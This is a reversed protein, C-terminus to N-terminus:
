LGLTRLYKISAEVSEMPTKGKEPDDQEVVLWEAGADAAANIIAPMDQVGHGVPRFGFVEEDTKEKEGSDIGILNYLHAPKEKGKMFFDKLHVVPARGTYKRIYESPNEGAVNVWCTDIETQLLDSPVSSYLVDLGYEGNVKEFEFDHNHYLLTMGKEKAVKGLMKINEIVKPFAEAGPRYEETMYPIAIYKCGIKSYTEMVKEPDSMMEDYPVHASVPILNLKGLIEKVEEAGHGFLGAFEVGDYGLDKVKKLTGEFDAARDARVSSLKLAIPM